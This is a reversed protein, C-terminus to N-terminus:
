LFLYFHYQAMVNAFDQWALLIICSKLYCSVPRNYGRFSETDHHKLTGNNYQFFQIEDQFKIYHHEVFLDSTQEMYNQQLKRWSCKKWTNNLNTKM